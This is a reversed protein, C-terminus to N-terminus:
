NAQLCCYIKKEFTENFFYSNFDTIENVSMKKIARAINLIYM